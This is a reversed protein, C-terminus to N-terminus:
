TNLANVGSLLGAPIMSASGGCDTNNAVWGNSSMATVYTPSAATGTYVIVQDGNSSLGFGTGLTSGINTVLTSTQVTIITGVPLCTDSPSTWEIAGECQPQAN